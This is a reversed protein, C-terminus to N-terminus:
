EKIKLETGLIENITEILDSVNGSYHLSLRIAAANEPLNIVEVGYIEKISVVVRTLPVDDFDIVKVVNLDKSLIKEVQTDTDNNTFLYGNNILVFAGAGLIVLTVCAATMWKRIRSFTYQPKIQRLAKETDFCGHRYNRAIFDINDHLDM